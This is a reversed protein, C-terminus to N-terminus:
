RGRCAADSCAPPIQTILKTLIFLHTLNANNIYPRLKKRGTVSSFPILLANSSSIRVCLIAAM